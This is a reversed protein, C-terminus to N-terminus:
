RRRPRKARIKSGARRATKAEEEKLRKIGIALFNLQDLTMTRIEEFTYHMEHMV